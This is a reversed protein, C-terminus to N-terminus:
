PRVSVNATLDGAPVLNGGDDKFVVTIQDHNGDGSQDSTSVVTQAHVNGTLNSENVNTVNVDVRPETAYQLGHSGDLDIVIQGNSDTSLGTFDAAGTSGDDAEIVTGNELKIHDNELQVTSYWVRAGDHRLDPSGNLRVNSLAAKENADIARGSGEFYSNSALLTTRGFLNRKGAIVQSNDIMVSACDFVMGDISTISADHKFMSNTIQVWSGYGIDAEIFPGADVGTLVVNDLRFDRGAKLKINPEGSQTCGNEITSNVFTLGRPASGGNRIEYHFLHGHYGDSVIKNAIFGTVAAGNEPDDFCNFVHKNNSADGPSVDVHSFVPRFTASMNVGHGATAHLAVEKLHFSKTFRLRLHDNSNNRGNEGKIGIGQIFNRAIYRSSTGEFKFAPDATGATEIYITRRNDYPTAFGIANENVEVTSQLEHGNSALLPDCIYVTGYGQAKLDNVTNQLVTSSDTSSEYAVSLDSGDVAKVTGNNTFIIFSAESRSNAISINDATVSSAGVSGANTINNGQLNLNGQTGVSFKDNYSLPNNSEIDLAAASPMMAAVGLAAGGGAIAKMFKRRSMGSHDAEDRIQDHVEEIEEDVASSDAYEKRKEEKLKQLEDELEQIREKLEDVTDDSM